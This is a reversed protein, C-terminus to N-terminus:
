RAGFLRAMSEGWVLMLTAALLIAPGYPLAAHARYRRATVAQFIIYLLGFLGGLLIMLVLMLVIRPYGVVLGCLTALTVDGFGFAVETVPKNRRANVIRLYLVGFLYFALVVVQAIAYGAFAQLVPVRGSVLVEVLAFAFAPLMVANLVLRHEIDIVAILAFLAVYLMLIFLQPTLGVKHWLYAAFAALVLEVAIVRPLHSYPWGSQAEDDGGSVERAEEDKAHRLAPLRDALLNVVIGLTLGGLAALAYGLLM